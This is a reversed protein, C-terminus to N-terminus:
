RWRTWHIRVNTQGFDDHEAGSTDWEAGFAIPSDSGVSPKTPMRSTIPGHVPLVRSSTLGQEPLMKSNTASHEPLVRSSTQDHEPLM